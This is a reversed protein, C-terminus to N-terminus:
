QLMYLMLTSLNIYSNLIYIDVAIFPLLFFEEYIQGGGEKEFEM